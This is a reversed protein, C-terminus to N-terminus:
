PSPALAAHAAARLNDALRALGPDTRGGRRTALHLHRHVPQTLRHLMVQEPVAVCGLNPILAVGAGAAVLALQTSFDTAEAVAHPTFGALGCAREVMEYCSWRHHPIIWDEQAHDALRTAQGAPSATLRQSAASTSATTSRRRPKANVRPDLKAIRALVAATAEVPCLEHARFAALLEVADLDALDV